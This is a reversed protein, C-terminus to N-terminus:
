ARALVSRSSAACAESSALGVPTIRDLFQILSLGLAEALLPPVANGVQTYRPCECRRAQGGTTYKGRFEFWDPFSQIRAYERVTFIRPESYHLCDDPLTTLTHCPENAALPIVVHKGIGLRERDEKSLQVGRKCAMIRRFSAVTSDRHNAFRHSDPVARSAPAGDRVVRMLRQYSGKATSYMGESFRSCEKAPREGHRRELDSLAVETTIAEEAMLGHSRLFDLRLEQLISFPSAIGQGNRTVRADIKAAVLIYRCRKQPVGYMSADILGSYVRYGLNELATAIEDAVTARIDGKDGHIPESSGFPVAIGRVNELLVLLPSLLEVLRICHSFLRNREDSSDRRGAFSFGQCPSGGVIMTVNGKLNELERRYHEAFATVDCPEVPLWDPWDFKPPESCTILNHKLTEFAMNDKEVAFLGKWGAKM